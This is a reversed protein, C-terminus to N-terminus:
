RTSRWTPPSGAWGRRTSCSCRGGRERLRHTKEYLDARTTTAIVAGPADIIRCIEEVSKGKRPGGLTQKVDECSAWVWLWGVKCLRYAFESTPIRLRQWWSLERYSPRLTRMRRRM